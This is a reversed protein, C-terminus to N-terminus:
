LGSQDAPAPRDPAPAPPAAEAAERQARDVAAVVALPNNVGHFTFDSDDTGATDFDVLGVRLLRDVLTQHTNVNQVRELKTQQVHKTLIGTRIHLRQNTITYTTTIRRIFGIVVVALFVVVAVLGVVAWDVDDGIETVLAAIGGAVAAVLLGKIYFSMISRWSPHGEFVVKEAPHLEV